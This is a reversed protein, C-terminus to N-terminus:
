LEEEAQRIAVQVEAEDPFQTQHMVIVDPGNGYFNTSGIQQGTWSRRPCVQIYYGEHGNGRPDRYMTQLIGECDDPPQAPESRGEAFWMFDYCHTSIETM